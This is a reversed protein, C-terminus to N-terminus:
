RQLLTERSVDRREKIGGYEGCVGEEDGSLQRRLQFSSGGSSRVRRRHDSSPFRKKKERGKLDTENSTNTKLDECKM